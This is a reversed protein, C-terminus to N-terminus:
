HPGGRPEADEDDLDDDFFPDDDEDGDRPESYASEFSGFVTRGRGEEVADDPERDADDDAQVDASDGDPQEVALDAGGGDESAAPPLVEELERLTPLDELSALGFLELFRKATAYLMPRGPIERHGAIRVLNRELLTRVVAGADVGRVHEIEARTVPQKYAIVALTELAAVSLKQTTREHFLRRVWEHLEPRTVIQYGNAVEVVTLGRAEDYRSKLVVVAAEIREAPEPELLKALAKLTIPDPSAFILAEVIAILQDDPPPITPAAGDPMEDSPGTISAAHAGEGEGAPHMEDGDYAEDDDVDGMLVGDLAEAVAEDHEARPDAGAEEDTVPATTDDIGAVATADEPQDNVDPTDSM